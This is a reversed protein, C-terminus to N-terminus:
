VLLHANDVDVPSSSSSSSSSSSTKQKKPENDKLGGAGVVDALAFLTSPLVSILHGVEYKVGVGRNVLVVAPRRMLLVVGRRLRRGLEEVM